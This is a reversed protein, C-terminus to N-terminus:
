LPTLRVRRDSDIGCSTYAGNCIAFAALGALNEVGITLTRSLEAPRPQVTQYAFDVVNTNENLIAEFTMTPAATASTFWSVDHWEVVFKRNPSTGVVHTCVASTTARLMLDTWFPAIVGNPAEMTPIDGAYGSAAVAHLSLFGNTSVNVMSNAAVSARFLTFAFPLAVFVAGDDNNEFALRTGSTCADIFPVTSATASPDRTYGTSAIQCGGLLCTQDAACTRGCIGCNRTDNLPNVCAAGGDVSCRIQFSMPCSEADLAADSADTVDGGDAPPVDAPPVDAPPVDVPPADVPPVDAPPVDAPPVDAPPVDAPPVDVAPVDTPEADAAPIDTAPTDNVPRDVVPVDAAAGGLTFETTPFSCGGLLSCM